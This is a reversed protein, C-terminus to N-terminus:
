AVLRCDRLLSLCRATQGSSGGTGWVSGQRDLRPSLVQSSAVLDERSLFWLCPVLRMKVNRHQSFTCLSTNYFSQGPGPRPRSYVGRATRAGRLLFLGSNNTAIILTM